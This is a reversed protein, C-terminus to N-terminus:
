LLGTLWDQHGTPQFIPENSSVTMLETEQVILMIPLRPCSLTFSTIVEINWSITRQTEICVNTKFLSEQPPAHLLTEEEDQTEEEDDQKETPCFIINELWLQDGPQLLSNVKKGFLVINRSVGLLTLCSDASTVGRCTLQLSM